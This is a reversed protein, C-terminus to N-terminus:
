AVSGVAVFGATGRRNSLRQIPGADTISARRAYRSSRSRSDRWRDAGEFGFARPERVQWSRLKREAPRGSHRWRIALRRYVVSARVVVADHEMAADMFASHTVWSLSTRSLRTTTGRRSRM